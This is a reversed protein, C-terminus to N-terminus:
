QLVCEGMLLIYLAKGQETQFLAVNQKQKESWLVATQKMNAVENNLKVYMSFSMALLGWMCCMSALWLIVATKLRKSVKM